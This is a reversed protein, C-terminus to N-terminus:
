PGLLHLNPSSVSNFAGSHLPGLVRDRGGERDGWQREAQQGQSQRVLVWVRM